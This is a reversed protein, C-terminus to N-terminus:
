PWEYASVNASSGPAEMPGGLCCSVVSAFVIIAKLFKM